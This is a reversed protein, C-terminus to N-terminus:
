GFPHSNFFSSTGGGMNFLSSAGAAAPSAALGLASGIGPFGAAMSGLGIAGQILQGALPQQTTQTTKGQMTQTGWGGSLATLLQTATDLGMFPAQSAYQDMGVANNIGAQQQQTELDAAMKLLDAGSAQTHLIANVFDPAMGMQQMRLAAEQQQRQNELAYNQQSAQTTMGYAQLRRNEYNQYDEYGLQSAIRQMSETANRIAETPLVNMARDGSYAGADLASNTIGPLINNQLQRMVPDISANIVSDLEQRPALSYSTDPLQTNFTMGQNLGPLMGQLFDTMQGATQATNTYGATIAALQAPDMTAVMPGTYHSQPIQSLGATVMNAAESLGPGTWTPPAATQTQNTVTTNKTKGM